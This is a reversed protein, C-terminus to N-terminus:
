PLLVTARILNHDSPPPTRFTGDARIDAVTEWETVRMRTTFIYDLYTGNLRGRDRHALWALASPALRILGIAYGAAGAKWRLFAKFSDRTTLTGDFDFAVVPSAGSQHETHTTGM